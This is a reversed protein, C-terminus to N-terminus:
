KHAVRTAAIRNVEALDLKGSGLMPLAEVLFFMERRPIWLNPLGAGALAEGIGELCDEDLTHLVVLLEGRKPDPVAAVALQQESLGLAEHLREEVTVHPVMEGGIKSFRSLRGTIFIFGDEDIYAVDGTNYWGDRLVEATKDPMELYGRMVNAGRVWLLGSEGPGVRLGRDPDLVRAAVGPVPHGISGRKNGVQYFGPSRFDEVNVSVVPSCETTGYGQLPEIGFRDAFAQCLADSLREAGVMVLRVGGLQGPEIRRIYQQLFTPTTLLVTVRHDRSLQGITKTDLPNAHYVVGLPLLAPTWLTVTYGFSHFFPLIGLIRDDGTFDMAQRFSEINAAINFHTLMVGKPEGTSGSSFILTALSDATPRSIARCYHEVGAVPLLRAAAIAGLAETWRGGGQGRIDEIWIPDAPPEMGIKELFARATVVTRIRSRRVCSALVSPGLTYNLNVATRGSLAAAYNVLAGGVSPPLMIGVTTQGEWPGSLRRALIVSRWLVQGWTLSPTLSDIMAFRRWNRRATRILQRHLPPTDPKAAEAALAGAEEIAQHMEFPTVTPPLPAGFVVRVPYPIALPRKWFFKGGSFSFISGWVGDLFTPIVPTEVGKLIFEFGRNMPLLGGTRSIQGEAFICVIEGNKLASSAEKLSRILDRPRQDAAVPIARMTKLLFRLLPKRYFGEYVVFRISRPVVAMLLLADIFSVHNSILLAPGKDPLNEHGVTRIRYLLRTILFGVLRLLSDPMLYLVVGTGVLTGLAIVLFLTNPTVELANMGYLLAAGILMAVNTVYNSAALLGGRDRLDTRAQLIANLPVSYFGASAGMLFVCMIMMLHNDPGGFGLPLAFVGIGLAGLPILGPEIRQRSLAGACMSGVGIGLALLPYLRGAGLDSLGLSNKGWVLVHALVMAGMGFFYALGLVTKTLTRDALLIRFYRRLEPFFNLPVSRTPNARPTRTIGLGVVWGACALIVLGAMIWYLRDPRGEEAIPKLLNFAETAAAVGLIIAVNTTMGILGNAWALRNESVLEPIIGYKSPSFFASQVFMLFLVGLALQLTASQPAGSSAMIAFVALGLTMIVIEVLKITLTIARKSFKDALFGAWCSFILFSVPMFGTILANLKGQEAAQGGYLLMVYLMLLTKFANDSFAGQAQLAVLNGFGRRTQRDIPASSAQNMQNIDRNM